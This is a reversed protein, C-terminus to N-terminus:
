YEPHTSALATVLGRCAKLRDVTEAFSSGLEYVARAPFDPGALEDNHRSRICVREKPKEIEDLEGRNRKWREFVAAHLGRDHRACLRGAAETNQYLWSEICYYPAVLCLRSMLEEKGRSSPNRALLADLAREVHLLVDDRYRRLNESPRRDRESWIRDADVHFLVVGQEDLLHRAISRTLMVLKQRGAGTRGKWLNAHMAEAAAADEPELDVRRAQHRPDVLRLMARALSRVASLAGEGSDESLVLVHLACPVVSM